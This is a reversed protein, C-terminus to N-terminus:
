RNRESEPSALPRPTLTQAPSRLLRNSAGLLSPRPSLAGSRPRDDLRGGGPAWGSGARYRWTENEEALVPELDGGAPLLRLSSRAVLLEKAGAPRVDIVACEYPAEVLAGSTLQLVPGQTRSARAHVHGGLVVTPAERALLRDALASRDILDGPYPFGNAAVEAALSLAPYHSLLVVPDQGWNAPEPLAALRACFWGHADGVHVGAVRVDTFLEGASTALEVGHVGARWHARILSRSDAAIDHNGAVVLVPVSAHACCRLVSVLSEEDGHHVLDGTLAIVEVGERDLLGL